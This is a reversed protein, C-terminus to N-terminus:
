RSAFCVFQNHPATTLTNGSTDSPLVSRDGPRQWQGRSSLPSWCCSHAHEESPGGLLPQCETVANRLELERPGRGQELWGAQALAKHCLHSFARARCLVARLEPNQELSWRGQGHRQTHWAAAWPPKTEEEAVHPGATQGAPGVPSCSAWM